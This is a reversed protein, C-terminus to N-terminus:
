PEDKGQTDVCRGNRIYGHWCKGCNVSPTFTPLERNGDWDWQATGGNANQADRKLETKDAIILDGCRRDYMPCQFSFAQEMGAEVGDREHHFRRSGHSHFIVKADSM